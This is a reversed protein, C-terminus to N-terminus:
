FLWALYTTAAGALLAGLTCFKWLGASIDRTVARITWVFGGALVFRATTAWEYPWPADFTNTYISAGSTILLAFMGIAFGISVEYNITFSIARQEASVEQLSGVRSLDGRRIRRYDAWRLILRYLLLTFALMTLVGLVMASGAALDAALGPNPLM